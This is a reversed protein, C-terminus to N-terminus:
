HQQEAVPKKSAGIDSKATESASPPTTGTLPFLMAKIDSLSTPFLRQAEPPQTSPAKEVPKPLTDAPTKELPPSPTVATTREKPATEENKAPSAPQPSPSADVNGLIIPLGDKGGM